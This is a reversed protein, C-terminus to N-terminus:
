RHRTLPFTGRLMQICNLYARADHYNAKWIQSKPWSRVEPNSDSGRQYWGGNEHDILYRDIYRWQKEFAQRYQEEQPFLQSMMLFANLGEAAIWWVKDEMVVECDGGEEFYYGGEWLGGLTEDWGTALGHDVLAKARGLTVPDLEGYLAHAAELLLFASEVDHGWSVHDWYLHNLVYERGMERFSVPTWDRFYYLRLYGPDQFFRDRVIRLMAATRGKLHPDPWVRYLATFAELIHISSNYDKLGIRGRLSELDKANVNEAWSGDRQLKDVYGGYESDWAARDLWLFAEKALDLASADGSAEYYTALAYIAFANGYATKGPSERLEGSRSLREHFGGQKSDWAVLRLFELGHRAIELYRADGTHSAARSSTWLHRAQSVLFKDQPGKREWDHAFDSFYGGKEEDVARPYWAELIHRQFSAELEHLIREQESGFAKSSLALFFLTVAVLGSRSIRM